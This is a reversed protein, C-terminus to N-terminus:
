KIEQLTFETRPNKDYVKEAQMSAIAYNSTYCIGKCLSALCKVSDELSPKCTHYHKAAKNKQFNSPYPFYFTVNLHLPGIFLLQDDHQNNITTYLVLRTEHLVNFVRGRAYHSNSILTPDGMICYHFSTNMHKERGSRRLQRRLLNTFYTIYSSFLMPNLFSFAISYFDYMRYGPYVIHM